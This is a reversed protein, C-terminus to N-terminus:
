ERRWRKDTAILISFVPELLLEIQEWSKGEDKLKRMLDFVGIDVTPKGDERLTLGLDQENDEFDSKLWAKLNEFNHSSRVKWKCRSHCLEFRSLSRWRLYLTADFHFIHGKFTNEKYYIKSAEQRIQKNVGLLGPEPPIVTDITIKGSKLLVLRYIEIRLEYPLGVLCANENSLSQKTEHASQQSHVSLVEAPAEADSSSDFGINADREDASGTEAPKADGGSHIGPRDACTETDLNSEASISKDSGAKADPETDIIPHIVVDVDNQSVPEDQESAEAQPVNNIHTDAKRSLRGIRVSKWLRLKTLGNVLRAM